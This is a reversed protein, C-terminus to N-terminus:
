QGLFWLSSRFVQRTNSFACAGDSLLLGFDIFAESFFPSSDLTLLQFLCWSLFCFFIFIQYLLYNNFSTGRLSVFSLLFVKLLKLVTANDVGNMVSGVLRYHSKLERFFVIMHIMLSQLVVLTTLMCNTSPAFPINNLNKLIVSFLSILILCIRILFFWIKFFMWPKDVSRTNCSGASSNTCKHTEVHSPLLYHYNYFWKLDVLRHMNILIATFDRVFDWLFGVTFGRSGNFLLHLLEVDQSVHLSGYSVFNRRELALTTWNVERSKVEM